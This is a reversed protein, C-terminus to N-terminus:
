HIGLVPVESEECCKGRRDTGNGSFTGRLAFSFKTPVMGGLRSVCLHVREGSLGGGRILTLCKREISCEFYRPSRARHNKKTGGKPRAKVSKMDLRNTGM